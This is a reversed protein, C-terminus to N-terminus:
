AHIRTQMGDSVCADCLWMSWHVFECGRGLVRRQMHMIAIRTCCQGHLPCQCRLSSLYMCQHRPLHCNLALNVRVKAHLPALSRGLRVRTSLTLGSIVLPARTITGNVMGLSRWVIKMLEVEEMTIPNEQDGTETSTTSAKALRQVVLGCSRGKKSSIMPELGHAM